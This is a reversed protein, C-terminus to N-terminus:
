HPARGSCRLLKSARECLPYWAFAQPLVPDSRYMMATSAIPIRESRVILRIEGAAAQEVNSRAKAKQRQEKRLMVRACPDHPAVTTLIRDSACSVKSGHRKIAVNAENEPVHKSWVEGCNTSVVGHRGNVQQLVQRFIFQRDCQIMQKVDRGLTEDDSHWVLLRYLGKVSMPLCVPQRTPGAM